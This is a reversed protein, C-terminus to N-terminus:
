WLADVAAGLQAFSVQGQEFAFCDCHDRLRRVLAAAINESFLKEM